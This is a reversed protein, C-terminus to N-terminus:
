TRPNAPERRTSGEALEDVAAERPIELRHATYMLAQALAPGTVLFLLATLLSKYGVIGPVLMAAGVHVGVAAVTTVLAFPKMRLYFVPMRQIGIVGLTALVLGATLVVLGLIGFLTM